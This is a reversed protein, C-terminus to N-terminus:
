YITIIQSWNVRSAFTLNIVLLIFAGVCFLTIIFLARSTNLRYSWLHYIIVLCTILYFLVAVGYIILFLNGM